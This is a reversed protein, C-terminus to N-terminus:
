SMLEATEDTEEMEVPESEGGDPVYTASYQDDLVQTIRFKIIQDVEMGPCASKPILVPEYGSDKDDGGSEDGSEDPIADAFSDDEYRDM